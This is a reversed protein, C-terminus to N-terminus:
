TAPIITNFLADVEEQSFAKSQQDVSQEVASDSVTTTEPAQVPEALAPETGLNQDQEM